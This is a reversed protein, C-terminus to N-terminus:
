DAKRTNCGDFWPVPTEGNDDSQPHRISGLIPDNNSFAVAMFGDDIMEALDARIKLM